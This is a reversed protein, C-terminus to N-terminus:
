TLIEFPGFQAFHADYALAQQLGLRRMVVFSIADCLSYTKDTHQQLLRIADTQDAFSIPEQMVVPNATFDAIIQNRM